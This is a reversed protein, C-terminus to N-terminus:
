KQDLQKILAVIADGYCKYIYNNKRFYSRAKYGQSSSVIYILSAKFGYICAKRQSELAPILPKPWWMRGMKFENHPVEDTDQLGRNLVPCM